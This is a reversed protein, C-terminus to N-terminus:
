RGGATDGSVRFAVSFSERMRAGDRFRTSAGLVRVASFSAASDLRPVVSAAANVSGDVRWESGDWELRQVFADAPLAESLVALVRLPDKAAGTRASVIRAESALQELQKRSALGPAALTRLSDVALETSRLTADRQHSGALTLALLAAAALAYSLWTRRTRLSQLSDELSGDLLMAALPADALLLAGAAASYKGPARESGDQHLSSIGKPLQSALRQPVRRASRVNGKDIELLGHEDVGADVAFTGSSEIAAAITNPAAFVGRVPAWEQFARVWHQLRESGTAFAPGNSEASAIALAGAAPFYRDADRLLVRRRDAANMSPVEPKAIELFGLGVSLVVSQANGISARLTDVVREPASADWVHEAFVMQGGTRYAVRVVTAELAVGVIPAM